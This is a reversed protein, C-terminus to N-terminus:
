GFVARALAPHDVFVADVGTGRIAAWEGRYDGFAAADTGRRFRPDLFANEPRLTWTFVQLGRVHAREVLARGGGALLTEKALSLGGIGQEALEDLGGDTTLEVYPIGTDPAAGSAELLAVYEARIGRVRLAGLVSPEFSEIVLPRRADAWSAARLEVELLAPVDFGAATFYTPHKVEVVPVVTRDAADLVELLDRLRLIPERDDFRASEPRLQPIRERATLTALEDWTFDECFWGTLEVGDVTKTTRREAFEPRSAVDTTESLEVDHRVVLVGDRSVVVDPEVADAGQDIALEYSSRTHEPRYGPAGRHGIILPRACSM